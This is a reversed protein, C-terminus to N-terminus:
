DFCLRSRGPAEGETPASLWFRADRGSLGSIQATNSISSALGTALLRQYFPLQPVFFPLSEELSDYSELSDSFSRVFVALNEVLEPKCDLDEAPTLKWTMDTRLSCRGVYTDARTQTWEWPAILSLRWADASRYLHYNNGVVPKFKFQASLVLLSVVYDNLLTRQDKPKAIAPRVSEWQELLTVLGKGQPNPNEPM